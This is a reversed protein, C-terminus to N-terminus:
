TQKLGEGETINIYKDIPLETFKETKGNPEPWRVELWEIKPRKGIGLVVRPDHSSFYSGGGVKTRSRKLDFTEDHNNQYLSFRERDLNAVFLDM